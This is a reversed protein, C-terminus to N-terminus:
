TPQSSSIHRLPRKPKYLGVKNDFERSKVENVVVKSAFEEKNFSSLSQLHEQESGKPCDILISGTSFLEQVNSPTVKTSNKKYIITSTNSHDNDNSSPDNNLLHDSNADDQNVRDNFSVDQLDNADNSIITKFGETQLLSSMSPPSIDGLSIKPLGNIHLLHSLTSEFSGPVEANKMTSITICMFAKAMNDSDRTRSHTASTYRMASTADAYSKHQSMLRKKDNVKQKRIPCSMSLSTHEGGCNLCKKIMSNCQRFTHDTSACVSCVKYDKPRNCSSALHEEVAYCKNCTMLNVFKEQVINSSPISLNFLRVCSDLAKTAVENSSCVLRITPSNPFVFVDVLSLWNNCEQLEASIDNVDRAIVNEDVQRLIVTRRAKIEPPLLSECHLHKLARVCAVSFLLYIDEDSNCWVLFNDSRIPQM